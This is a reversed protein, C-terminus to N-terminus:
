RAAGIEIAGIESSVYGNLYHQAIWRVAPVCVADGFGFLADNLSGTVTFEDAGMLRACERPTLLRAYFRGYGAKWLIQRGSGGKPTRLCGALGDVRLEAMSRKEGDEQRRVRRFVTGVSWSRKRIMEDAIIKHRKSMQGYLYAARESSWWVSAHHPIEELIDGLSELSATPPEPLSELAWRVGHSQRIAELLARPRVRSERLATVDFDSERDMVGVVFLRPRSQPVFWRADLMFADVGYGLSTLAQMAAAFDKGGHSTLFGVVNELLVIRPRDDGMRKLIEVFAWFASSEGAYLGARGGAISLDTCPFSATALEVAPIDPPAINRIDSVVFHDAADGFHGNYIDYKKPDIDNAFAVSWGVQELALRVLGIGAFFEAFRAASHRVKPEFRLVHQRHNGM